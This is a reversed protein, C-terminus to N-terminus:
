FYRRIAFSFIVSLMSNQSSIFYNEVELPYSPKNSVIVWLFFFLDYM